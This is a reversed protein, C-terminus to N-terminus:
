QEMDEKQKTIKGNDWVVVTEGKRFRLPPDTRFIYLGDESNLIGKTGVMDMIKRVSKPGRYIITQKDM